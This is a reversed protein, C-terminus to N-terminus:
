PPATIARPSVIPPIVALPPDELQPGYRWLLSCSLNKQLQGSPRCLAARYANWQVAASRSHNQLGPDRAAISLKRGNDGLRLQEEVLFFSSAGDHAPKDRADM